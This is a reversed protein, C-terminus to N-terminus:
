ALAMERDAAPPVFPQRRNRKLAYMSRDAAVMLDQESAGDAPFTAQGISVRIKLTASDAAIASESVARTIREKLAAASASDADPMLVCFEDGGLRVCFDNGGSSTKLIRAVERLVEDGMKHGFRDNCGKFDDLDIMLLSFARPLKEKSAGAFQQELLGEFKRRNLLGTLADTEALRLLEDNAARLSRQYAVLRSTRQRLMQEFAEHQSDASRAEGANASFVITSPIVTRRPTKASGYLTAEYARQTALYGQQYANEDIVASIAKRRLFPRLRETNDFGVCPVLHGASELVPAIEYGRAHGVFIGAARHSRLFDRTVEALDDFGAHCTVERLGPAWQALERTFGAYRLAAQEQQLGGPFSLVEGSGRMLRALVEAALTGARFADAGVFSCRTSEPADTNFTVVCTGKSTLEDILPNLASAHGPVIAAADPPSKLLASMVRTDAEVDHSRTRVPEVKVGLSALERAASGVGSWVEDFFERPEAGAVVAIRVSKKRISM